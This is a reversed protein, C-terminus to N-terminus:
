SLFRDPSKGSWEAISAAARILGVPLIISITKKNLIQKVKTNFIRSTYFQLDSILFNQRVADSEMAIFIAHCLDRVHVFSLQQADNGIYL